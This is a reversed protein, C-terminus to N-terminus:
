KRSRRLRRNSRQGESVLEGLEEPTAITRKDKLVSQACRRCRDFGIIHRDDPISETVDEGALLRIVLDAAFQSDFEKDRLMCQPQTCVEPLDIKKAEMMTEDKKMKEAEGTTKPGVCNNRPCRTEPNLGRFATAIATGGVEWARLLTWALM